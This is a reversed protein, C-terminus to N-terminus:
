TLHIEDLTAQWTRGCGSCRFIVGDIYHGRADRKRITRQPQAHQSDQPCVAYLWHHFGHEDPISLHGAALTEEILRREPKNQLVM